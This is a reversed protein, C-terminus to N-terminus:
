LPEMKPCKESEDYDDLRIFAFGDETSMPALSEQIKNSSFKKKCKFLIIKFFVPESLRVLAM